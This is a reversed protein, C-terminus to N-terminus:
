NSIMKVVCPTNLQSIALIKSGIRAIVECVGRSIARFNNALIIDFLMMSHAIQTRSRLLIESKPSFAFLFGNHGNELIVKSVLYVM